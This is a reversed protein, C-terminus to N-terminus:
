IGVRGIDEFIRALTLFQAENAFGLGLAALNIAPKAVPTVGAGSLATRLLVVHDREDQGIEQAVAGTFVFNNSFNVQNGGTTAGPMGTGTIDINYPSEEITKGSTAVTYFEAELYELNLAFQLIDVATPTPDAFLKIGGTGLAAGAAATAIGIKRLMGRRNVSRDIVDSILTNAKM